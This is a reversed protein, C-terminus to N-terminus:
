DVEYECTTVWGNTVSREAGVEGDGPRGASGDGEVAVAAAVVGAAAAAADSGIDNAASAQEAANYLEHSCGGMNPGAKELVQVDNTAAAAATGEEQEQEQVDSSLSSDSDSVGDAAAAVATSSSAVEQKIWEAM